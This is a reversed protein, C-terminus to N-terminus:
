SECISRWAKPRVRRLEYAWDTVSFIHTSHWIGQDRDLDEYWRIFNFDASSMIIGFPPNLNWFITQETQCFWTPLYLVIQDRPYGFIVPQSTPDNRTFYTVRGPQGLYPMLDGLRLCRDDVRIWDIINSQDFLFLLKTQCDCLMEACRWDIAYREIVGTERTVQAISAQAELITQAQAIGTIGPQIGLLCPKDCGDLPGFLRRMHSDDFPQARILLIPLWCLGLLAIVSKVFVRLM